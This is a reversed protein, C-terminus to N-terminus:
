LSGTPGATPCRRARAQKEAGGSRITLRGRGGTRQLRRSPSRKATTLMLYMIHGLGDAWGDAMVLSRVGGRRRSTQRGEGGMDRRGRFSVRELRLARSGESREPDCSTSTVKSSALYARGSGSGGSALLVLWAIGSAALCRSIGQCRRRHPRLVRVRVPLLLDPCPQVRDPKPHSACPRRASSVTPPISTLCVCVHTGKFCSRQERQLESAFSTKGDHGCKGLFTYLLM